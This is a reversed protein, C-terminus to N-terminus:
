AESDRTSATSASRNTLAQYVTESVVPLLTEIPPALNPFFLTMLVTGRVAGLAVFMRSSLDPPPDPLNKQCWRTLEELVEQYVPEVTAILWSVPIELNLRRRHEFSLGPGTLAARCVERVMTRADLGSQSTLERIQVLLTRYMERSVEAFLAATTPFYRHLSAAGVGAREAISALTAQPGLEIAAAVVSRM